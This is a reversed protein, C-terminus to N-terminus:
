KDRSQCDRRVDISCCFALFLEGEWAGFAKAAERTASTPPVNIM